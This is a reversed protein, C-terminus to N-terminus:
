KNQSKPRGNISGTQVPALIAKSPDVSVTDSGQIAVMESKPDNVPASCVSACGAKTNLRQGVVGMLSASAPPDQPSDQSQHASSSTKLANQLDVIQQQLNNILISTEVDKQECTQVKDAISQINPGSESLSPNPPPKNLLIKAHSEVHVKLQEHNSELKKLNVELATMQTGDPPALSMSRDLKKKEQHAKEERMLKRISPGAFTRTLCSHKRDADFLATM